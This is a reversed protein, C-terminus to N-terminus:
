AQNEIAAQGLSRCKRQESRRIVKRGHFLMQGHRCTESLRYLDSYKKKIKGINKGMVSFPGIRFLPCPGNKTNM